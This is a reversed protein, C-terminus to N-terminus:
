EFQEREAKEFRGWWEEKTLRGGLETKCVGIMNGEADGVAEILGARILM